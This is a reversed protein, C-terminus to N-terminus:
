IPYQGLDTGGNLAKEFDIVEGSCTAMRGIIGTFTSKAGYEM